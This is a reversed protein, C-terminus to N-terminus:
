RRSRSRRAIWGLLLHGGPLRVLRFIRSWFRQATASFGPLKLGTYLEKRPEHVFASAARLELSAGERRLVIGVAAGPRWVISLEPCADFGEVSEPELEHLFLREHPEVLNTARWNGGGLNEFRFRGHLTQRQELM